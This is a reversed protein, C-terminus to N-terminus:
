KQWNLAFAAMVAVGSWFTSENMQFKPNHHPIDREDGFSGNHFFFAGKAKKLFESFDEGGMTPEPIERVMDDGIVGRAISVMKEVVEANNIVAGCGQVMTVEAQGRMSRAVDEITATIRARLYKRLEPDLARLTGEISVTDPIINFASGGNIMGVTIVAPSLPSIERSVLSQLQCVAQCAMLVTDIALHPMAGHGGKGKFIASFKDTSAMLGGTRFGITGPKGANFLTGSHIGIITDVGDMVGDLVQSSAGNLTEEAPQFIFRVKGTLEKRREAILEATGLLMAAHSDHGCAHMNDNESAFPLETEERIPLGDMDARLALTKGASEGNVEAVIGCSKGSGLIGVNRKISDVGIAELQRVIYDTTKLLDHSLEPIKHLERRWEIVKREIKKAAELIDKM